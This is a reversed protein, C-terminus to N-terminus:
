QADAQRAPHAAAFPALAACAQHARRIAPYADLPVKFREANYIQPMLYIDALTPERGCCFPAGGILKEIAAFGEGIWHAYWADVKQADHGLPDRLYKLVSLNNLPHIECGIIAAIARIAARNEAPGPLLPPDPWKEDLYELIAVSQTLVEGSELALAPVRAQPNIARYENTLHAGNALHIAVSEYAISKLNLAIRVRYAASSRFYDYLKM